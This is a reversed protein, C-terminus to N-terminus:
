VVNTIADPKGINLSHATTPASCPVRYVAPVNCQCPQGYRSARARGCAVRPRMVVDARYCRNIDCLLRSGRWARQCARLQRDLIDGLISQCMPLSVNSSSTRKGPPKARSTRRSMSTRQVPWGRGALQWTVSVRLCCVLECGMPWTLAAARRIEPDLQPRPGM